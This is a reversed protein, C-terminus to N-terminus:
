LNEPFHEKMIDSLMDLTLPKHQFGSIDENKEARLRDDPNFSTTLMVIIIKSKQNDNLKHYAELFEWGDMVPMNIDLFILEPQPFKNDDKLYKGTNTLYEIAEKGNLVSEIHEAIGARQVIRRNIFNTGDDDDVLLVCNLKKM